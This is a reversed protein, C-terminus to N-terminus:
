AILKHSKDLKLTLNFRQTDPTLRMPYRLTYYIYDKLLRQLPSWICNFNCIEIRIKSLGLFEFISDL